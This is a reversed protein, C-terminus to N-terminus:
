STVEGFPVCCQSGGNDQANLNDTITVTNQKYSGTSKSLIYLQADLLAESIIVSETTSGMITLSPHTIIVQEKYTGPYIFVTAPATGSLSAM